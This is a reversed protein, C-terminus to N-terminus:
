IGKLSAGQPLLRATLTNETAFILGNAHIELNAAM